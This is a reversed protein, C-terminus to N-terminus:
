VAQRFSPPVTMVLVWTLKATPDLGSNLVVLVAVASLVASGGLLHAQWDRFWVMVSVLLGAQLLFLLLVLGTRGFIARSLGYKGRQVLEERNVRM